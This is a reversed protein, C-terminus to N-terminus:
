CYTNKEYKGRRTIILFSLIVSPIVLYLLEFRIVALGNLSFFYQPLIASVVIPRWPFFFRLNSFPSFLAVGLGGTTMADLLIHIVGITFFNLFLIKFIKLGPKPKPASIFSFLVAGLIVFTLSHSFGRHGFLSNYPIGLGYGIGDLDPLLSFLLSLVIIKPTNIKKVIGLNVPIATIAHTIITPM